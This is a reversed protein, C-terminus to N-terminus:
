KNKLQKYAAREPSDMWAGISKDVDPLEPENFGISRNKLQETLVTNVLTATTNFMEAVQKLTNNQAIALLDAKEM